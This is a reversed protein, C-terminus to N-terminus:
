ALGEFFFSARREHHLTWGYTSRLIKMKFGLKSEGGEALVRHMNADVYNSRMDQTEVLTRM